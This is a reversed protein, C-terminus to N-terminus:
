MMLETAGGTLVLGDIQLMLEKIKEIPLFHPIPITRAGASEVWKRYSSAMYGEYGLGTKYTKIFHATLPLTLIGIVPDSLRDLNLVLDEELEGVL